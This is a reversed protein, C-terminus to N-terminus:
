PTSYHKILWDFLKFIISRVVMMGLFALWPKVKRFLRNLRKRRASVSRRGKTKMGTEKTSVLM